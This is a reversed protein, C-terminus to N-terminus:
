VREMCMMRLERNREELNLPPTLINFVRTGFKVRMKATIAPYYRICIEHTIDPQVQQANWLERGSLPSIKAPVRAVIQWTDEEEGYENKTSSPQEITIPHRYKGAPTWHTM